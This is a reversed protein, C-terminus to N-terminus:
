GRASDEDDFEGIKEVVDFLVLEVGDVVLLERVETDLRQALQHPTVAQGQEVHLTERLDVSTRDSHEDAAGALSKWALPDRRKELGLTLEPDRIRTHVHRESLAGAHVHPM